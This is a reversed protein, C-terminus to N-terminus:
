RMWNKAVGVKYTREEVRFYEVDKPLYTMARNHPSTNAKMKKMMGVPVGNELVNLGIAEAEEATDAIGAVLEGAQMRVGMMVWYRKATKM